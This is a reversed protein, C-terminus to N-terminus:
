GITDEATRNSYGHGAFLCAAVSAIVVDYRM